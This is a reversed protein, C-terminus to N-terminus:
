SVKFLGVLAGLEDSLRTLQDAAQSTTHTERATERIIDTIKHMNNSIERSTSSQEEAATAIQNVQGTVENIQNLIDELARGSRSAEGTGREVEGVGEEMSNVAQRTEGQIAKIMEGIERTARTTREALARVEDAVVAFGRGQEGARAAEIAANLALLNTQDAIDEITGVITGIQDSRSGLSEVTHATARVQESIRAMGDVTGQVIAAGSTALENARRSSQAAASCNAAIDLSTAAMEEGAAAVTTAQSAVEDTGAVMTHSTARLERAANTVLVATASVRRIADRMRATMNEMSRMLHSTESGGEDVRITVTLDGEAIRDAVGVCQQLPAIIGRTIFFATVISFVLAIIGFTAIAKIAIESSAAAEATLRESSQEYYARVAELASDVNDDVSKAEGNMIALFGAKDDALAAAALKNNVAKGALAAKLDGLKKKGEPTTTHKMLYGFKEGYKQRQIKMKDISRRKEAPDDALGAVKIAEEIEMGDIQLKYATDRLGSVRKIEAFEKQGKLISGIGITTCAILLVSVVAFGVMLRTGIRFKKM